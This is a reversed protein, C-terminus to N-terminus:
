RTDNQDREHLSYYLKAPPLYDHQWTWAKNKCYVAKVKEYFDMDNSVSIIGDQDTIHNSEVPCFIEIEGFVSTVVENVLIHDDHGYEGTSNHTFIKTIHYQQKLDSLSSYLSERSIQYQEVRRNDKWFGSEGIRLLIIKERLPHEAIALERYSKAYPKDHRALFAIVILDFSVPSFWIIEDDPHAVILVNM